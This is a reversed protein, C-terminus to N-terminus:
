IIKANFLLYKAIAFNPFEHIGIATTKVNTRKEIEAVSTEGNMHALTHM